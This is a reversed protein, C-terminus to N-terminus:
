IWTSLMMLNLLFVAEMQPNMRSLIVEILTWDFPHRSECVENVVDVTITAGKPAPGAYQAQLRQRIRLGQVLRTWRKLVRERKKHREQEVRDAEAERYADMVTEEHEAAIVIGKLVPTAKRKKFEFGVQAILPKSGYREGRRL